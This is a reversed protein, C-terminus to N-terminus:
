SRKNCFRVADSWRVQEVPNKDGKWRSPNTGMLAQFREQTVLHTDILFASLAVEHPPADPESKDGMVFHGASIRAMGASAPAPTTSKAPSAPRDSSAGLCFLGVLLPAIALSRTRRWAGANSASASHMKIIPGFKMVM